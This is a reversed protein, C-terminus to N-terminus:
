QLASPARPYLLSVEPSVSVKPGSAFRRSFSRLVDQRTEIRLETFGAGGAPKKTNGKKKGGSSYKSLEKRHEARVDEVHQKIKELEEMKGPQGMEQLREAKERAREYKAILHADHTQIQPAVSAFNHASGISGIKKEFESMYHKMARDAKRRLTDMIFGHLTEPRKPNVDNSGNDARQAEEPTEAWAPARRGYKKIDSELVGQDIALGTKSGDLCTCFRAKGNATTALSPLFASM